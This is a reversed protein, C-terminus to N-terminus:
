DPPRNPLDFTIAGSEPQRVASSLRVHAPSRGAGLGPVNQARRQAQEDPRKLAEGQRQEPTTTRAHAGLAGRREPGREPARESRPRVAMAPERAIQRNRQWARAVLLHRRDRLLDPAAEAGHEGFVRVELGNGIALETLVDLHYNLRSDLRAAATAPWADEDGGM